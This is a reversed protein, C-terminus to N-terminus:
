ALKGFLSHPDNERNAFPIAANKNRESALLFLVERHDGGLLIVDLESGVHVAFSEEGEQGVVDWVVTQLPVVGQFGPVRQDHLRVFLHGRDNERNPGCIIKEQRCFSNPNTQEFRVNCDM